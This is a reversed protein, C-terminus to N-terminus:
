LILQSNLHLQFIGGHLDPSVGVNRLFWSSACHKYTISVIFPICERYKDSSAHPVCLLRKHTTFDITLALFHQQLEGNLLASMFFDARKFSAPQSTLYPSSNKQRCEACRSRYACGVNIYIHTFMHTLHWGRLFNIGTIRIGYNRAKIPLHPFSENGM